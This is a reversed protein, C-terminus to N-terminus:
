EGSRSGTGMIVLKKAGAQKALDMAQIVEGHLVGEGPMVVVRKRRSREVARALAAALQGGAVEQDNLWCRGNEMKLLLTDDAGAQAAQEADAPKEGPTVNMGTQLFMPATAMFIVVLVLSVDVLPTLNITVIPKRANAIM